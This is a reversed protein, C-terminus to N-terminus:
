TKAGGFYPKAHGEAVLRDNFSVPDGERGLWCLWRGFKEKPDGKQTRIVLAAGAATVLEQLRAKAALAAAKTAIRNKEPTDIGALRFIGRTRVELGLDIVARVTDGDLVECELVRYSFIPTTVKM